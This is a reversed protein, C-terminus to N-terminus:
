AAVGWYQLSGTFTLRLKIQQGATISALAEVGASTVDDWSTGDDASVEIKSISGGSVEGFIIVESVNSPLDLARVSQLVVESAAAEFTEFGLDDSAYSTWADANSKRVAKGAYGSSNTGRFNVHNSGDGTYAGSRELVIAYTTGSSLAYPTDFTFEVLTDSTSLASVDIGPATALAAGTPLDSSTAYLTPILTGTPSGIKQLYLRFGAITYSSGPTFSQGGGRESASANSFVEITTQSHTAQSDQVGGPNVDVEKNGADHSYGSSNAADIGNTNDFTDGWLLDLGAADAAEQMQLFLIEKLNQIGRSFPWGKVALGSM